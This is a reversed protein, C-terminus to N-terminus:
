FFPIDCRFHLATADVGAVAARRLDPHGSALPTDGVQHEVWGTPSGMGSAIVRVVGANIWSEAGTVGYYAGVLPDPSTRDGGVVYFPEGRDCEYLDGCWRWARGRYFRSEPDRRAGLVSWDRGTRTISAISQPGDNWAPVDLVLLPAEPTSGRAWIRLAPTGDWPDEISVELVSSASLGLRANAIRPLVMTREAHDPVAEYVFRASGDDTAIMVRPVDGDDAAVVDLTTEGFTGFPFTRLLAGARDRVELGHSADEPVVLLGEGCRAVRAGRAVPLRDGIAAGRGDVLLLWANRGDGHQFTLAWGDAHRDLSLLELMGEHVLTVIGTECSPAPALGVDVPADIAVRPADPRVPGADGTSPRVPADPTGDIARGHSSYCGVLALALVVRRM